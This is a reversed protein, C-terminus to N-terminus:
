CTTQWNEYASSTRYNIVSGNHENNNFQEPTLLMVSRFSVSKKSQNNCQHGEGDSSVSDSKPKDVSKVGHSLSCDQLHENKWHGYKGFIACPSKMTKSEYQKKTMRHRNNHTHTANQRRGTAFGLNAKLYRVDNNQKGVCQKVVYAVSGYTISNLFQENTATAVDQVDSASAAAALVSMRQSDNIHCNSILM